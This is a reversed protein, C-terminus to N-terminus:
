PAVLGTVRGVASAYREFSFCMYQWAVFLVSLSGHGLRTPVSTPLDTLRKGFIRRRAQSSMFRTEIVQGVRRPRFTTISWAVRMGNPFVGRVDGYNSSNISGSATSLSGGGVNIPAWSSIQEGALNAWRRGHMVVLDAGVGLLATEVTANSEKNIAAYVNAWTGDASASGPVRSLMWVM